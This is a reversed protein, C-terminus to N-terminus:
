GGGQPKEKEVLEPFQGAYDSVLLRRPQEDEDIDAALGIHPLFFSDLMEDTATSIERIILDGQEARCEHFTMPEILAREGPRLVLRAGPALKRAAGDVEAELNATEDVAADPTTRHLRLCLNGPGCAVIDKTRRRHFREPIRQGERLIFWREAYNRAGGSDGAGACFAVTGEAAFNDLGFDSVLWGMRSIVLREHGARVRRAFEDPRWFAFPPLVVGAAAFFDEADALLTNIHSREM